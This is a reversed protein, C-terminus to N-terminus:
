TEDDHHFRLRREVVDRAVDDLRRDQAYAYARLRAMAEGIGVGLQVMVMGQAQFLAPSREIEAAPGDAGDPAGTDRQRDLLVDVAVEAFSLALPLENGSLPGARERYVDMVGLRAAGVQLPFAFVARIGDSLLAPAYGPWRGVVGDELDAILVPRRGTFADRCPGEGLVFQLEELRESDPDTAAYVGRVGDDTLLSIGAGFASLAEATADCVERLVAGTSEWPTPPTTILDRLAKVRDPV